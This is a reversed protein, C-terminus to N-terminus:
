SSRQRTRSQRATMPRGIGALAPLALTARAPLRNQEPEGRLKENSLRSWNEAEAMWLSRSEPERKALQKCLAARASLELQSAM